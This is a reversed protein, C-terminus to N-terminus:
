GARLALEIVDGRDNMPAGCGALLRRIAANERLVYACLTDYRRKKALTLLADRLASGIRQRQLGDDVLFALEARQADLRIMRAVGVLRGDLLAIIAIHDDHDVRTLYRWHAPSLDAVPGHFRQYRSEQSQSRFWSRLAPEDSPQLKRITLTARGSRSSPDDM